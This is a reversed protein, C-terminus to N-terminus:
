GSLLLLSLAIDLDYLLLQPLLPPAAWRHYSNWRYYMLRLHKTRQLLQQLRLSTWLVVPVQLM